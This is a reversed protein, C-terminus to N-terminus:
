YLKWNNAEMLNQYERQKDVIIKPPTGFSGNNVNIYNVDMLFDSKLHRGFKKGDM